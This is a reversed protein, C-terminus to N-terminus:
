IIGIMSLVRYVEYFSIFYLFTISLTDIKASESQYLDILTVLFALTLIRSSVVPLGLVAGILSCFILIFFLSSRVDMKQYIRKFAFATFFLEFFIAVGYIRVNSHLYYEVKLIVFDFFNYHNLILILPLLFFLFRLLQKLSTPALLIILNWHATFALLRVLSVPLFLGLLLVISYRINIIPLVFGLTLLWFICLHINCRVKIYLFSVFVFSSVTALLWPANLMSSFFRISEFYLLALPEFYTVGYDQAGLIYTQIDSLPNHAILFNAFFGSLVLTSVLLFFYFLRLYM